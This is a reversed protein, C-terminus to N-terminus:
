KHAARSERSSIIEMLAPVNGEEDTSTSLFEMIAVGMEPRIPLSSM